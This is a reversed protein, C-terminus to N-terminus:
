PARRRALRRRVILVGVLPLFLAGLAVSKWENSLRADIQGPVNDAPDSVLYRVRVADGPRLDGCERNGYGGGGRGTYTRAGVPFEYAFLQHNACTTATVVGRADAGRAELRSYRPLNCSGVLVGVILVGGFYVGPV